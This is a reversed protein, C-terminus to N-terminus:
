DVQRERLETLRAIASFDRDAHLGVVDHRIWVSTDVLYNM